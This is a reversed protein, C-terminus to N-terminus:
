PPIFHHRAFRKSKFKSIHSVMDYGKQPHCKILAYEAETLRGPKNLINEPIGIKGIDHLLAGIFIGQCMMPRQKMKVAIQYSYKAVNESHFATYADRADLAKSLTKVLLITDDQDKEFRQILMKIVSSVLFYSLWHFFYFVLDKGHFGMKGLYGSLYSLGASIIFIYGIHIHRFGIGLLICVVIFAGELFLQPNIKFIVNLLVTSCLVIFFATQYAIKKELISSRKLFENM